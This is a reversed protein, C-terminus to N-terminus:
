EQDETMEHSYPLNTTTHPKLPVHKKNNGSNLWLRDNDFPGSLAGGTAEILRSQLPLIM